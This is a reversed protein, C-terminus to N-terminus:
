RTESLDNTVSLGIDLFVYCVSTIKGAQIPFLDTPVVSDQSAQNLRAQETSTNTRLLCNLSTKWNNSVPSSSQGDSITNESHDLEDTAPNHMNDQRETALLRIWFNCNCIQTGFKSFLVLRTYRLSHSM